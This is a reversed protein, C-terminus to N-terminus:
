KLNGGVKNVNLEGKGEQYIFGNSKRVMWGSDAYLVIETENGKNERVEADLPITGYANELLEKVTASFLRNFYEKGTSYSRSYKRIEGVSISQDKDVIQLLKQRLLM